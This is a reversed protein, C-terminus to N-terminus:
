ENEQNLKEVATGSFSVQDNQLSTIAPPIVLGTGGETSVESETVGYSQRKIGADQEQEIPRIERKVTSIM